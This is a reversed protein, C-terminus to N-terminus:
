VLGSQLSTISCDLKSSGSFTLFSGKQICCPLSDTMKIILTLYLSLKLYWKNICFSIPQAKYAHNQNSTFSATTFKKQFISSCLMAGCRKVLKINRYQKCNLFRPLYRTLVFYTCIIWSVTGKRGVMVYPLHTTYYFLKKGFRASTTFNCSLLKINIILEVSFYPWLLFSVAHTGMHQTESGLVLPDTNNEQGPDWGPYGM